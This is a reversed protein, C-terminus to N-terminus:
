CKTSCGTLLIELVSQLRIAQSDLLIERWNHERWLILLHLLWHFDKGQPWNRIQTWWICSGSFEALMVIPVSHTNVSDINKESCDRFMNDHNSNATTTTNKNNATTICAHLARFYLTQGRCSANVTSFGVCCPCHLSYIFTFTFLFSVCNQELTWNYQALPRVSYSTKSPLLLSLM